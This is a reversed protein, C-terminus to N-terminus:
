KKMLNGQAEWFNVLLEDDESNTVIENNFLSANNRTLRSKTTEVEMPEIKSNRPEIKYSNPKNIALSQTKTIKDNSFNNAKFSGTGTNFNRNNENSTFTCLFAHAEEISKPRAAQAYGFYPKRLGSIYAALSYEDIFDNIVDWQASYKANQKASSKINYVIQKTKKCYEEVSGDMRNHWLQCNYSSLEKKDGLADILIAKVESFNSPTGNVCLVDKAHGEIKNLVATFYIRFTNPPM